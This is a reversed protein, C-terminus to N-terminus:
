ARRDARPVKRRLPDQTVRAHGLAAGARADHAFVLKAGLNMFANPVFQERGNELQAMDHWVVLYGAIVMTMADRGPLGDARPGRRLWLRPHALSRGGRRPSAPRAAGAPRANRCGSRDGANAHGCSVELPQPAGPVDVIWTSVKAPASMQAADLIARVLDVRTRGDRCSITYRHETWGVQEVRRYADTGLLQVVASHLDDAEIKKTRGRADQFSYIM